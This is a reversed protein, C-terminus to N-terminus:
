PCGFFFERETPAPADPVTVGLDEVAAGVEAEDTTATGGVEEVAETIAAEVAAALSEISTSNVDTTEVVAQLVVDFM